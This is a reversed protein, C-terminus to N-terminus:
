LAGAEPESACPLSACRLIIDQLATLLTLFPCYSLLLFDCLATISPPPSASERTMQMPMAVAESSM